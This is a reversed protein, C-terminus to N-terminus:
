GTELPNLRWPTWDGLPGTELPDLKWNIRKGVVLVFVCNSVDVFLIHPPPLRHPTSFDFFFFCPSLPLCYTVGTRRTYIFHDEQRSGVCIRLQLCRSFLHPPPPSSSSDFFSIFFYLPVLPLLM